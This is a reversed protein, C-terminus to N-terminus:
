KKRYDSNKGYDINEETVRNNKNISHLIFPLLMFFGMVPPDFPSSGSFFSFFYTLLFAIFFVSYKKIYRLYLYITKYLLWLYAAL